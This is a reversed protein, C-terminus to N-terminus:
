SGKNDQSSSTDQKSTQSTSSNDPQSAQPTPTPFPNTTGDKSTQISIGTRGSSAQGKWTEQVPEKKKNDPVILQVIQGKGKTTKEESM